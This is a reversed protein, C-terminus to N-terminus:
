EGEDRGQLSQIIKDYTDRHRDILETAVEIARRLDAIDGETSGKLDDLNRVTVHRLAGVRESVNRPIGLDYVFTLRDEAFDSAHDQELVHQPATMACVVANASPLRDAIGALPFVDVESRAASPPEPRTLHYCWGCRYGRRVLRDVMGRGVPGTGMVLVVPNEVEALDRDMSAVCADEIERGELFAGVASAVGRSVRLCEGVWGRMVGGAWDAGCAETLAEKLQAKIHDEGPSQSDLGSAVLALHRFADFGQVVYYHPLGLHDFDMASGILSLLGRTPAGVAILEVRNCTNLIMFEQLGLVESLMSGVRRRGDSDLHYCERDEVPLHHHSTGVVLLDASSVADLHRALGNRVVRSRRCSRGGTTVSVALGDSRFTAPTVFDGEPWNRDVPCCLVGSRRCDELVRRNVRRDDTAAFALLFGEADGERFERRVLSIRDSGAMEALEPRVDPSVVTVEAEAQLLLRTKRLAVKGGGVVLFRRGKVLLGIPLVAEAKQRERM